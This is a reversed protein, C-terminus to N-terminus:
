VASLIAAWVVWFSISLIIVCLGHGLLGKCLMYIGVFIGIFPMLIAIIYGAVINAPSLSDAKNVPINNNQNNIVITENRRINTNCSSCRNEFLDQDSLQSGCKQCFM